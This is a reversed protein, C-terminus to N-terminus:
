NKDEKLVRRRLQGCAGEIDSGLTRRTTASIGEDKLAQWFKTEREKSLPKNNCDKNYNVPILNVHCAIGRTLARLRLADQHNTNEALMVYEFVVRRKTKEYYYRIASMLENLSYANAVRMLKKRTEDETAHLSITLTIGLNEDTLKRIKDALGCTSLSINRQSINLGDKNSVLRIFKVVNDYNDLPEGSGMLVINTIKRDEKTGGLFHNVCLVQGLIEGASLNRILGDLGSACFSCGMRCGVQTSVCLTYGYKYKMLVGEILEGDHLKYLFKITGDKSEFKNKIEVPTAVFREELETRLEQPLNSMESFPVYNTGWLYIQNIRFNPLNLDALENKLEEISYDQLLKMKFKPAQLIM